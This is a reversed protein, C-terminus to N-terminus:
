STSSASPSIAREANRRRWKMERRHRRQPTPTVQFVRESPQGLIIGAVEMLVAVEDLEAEHRESPEAAPPPSPPLCRVWRGPSPDVVYGGPIFFVLRKAADPGIFELQQVVWGRGEKHWWWGESDPLALEKAEGPERLHFLVERMQGVGVMFVYDDHHEGSLKKEIWAIIEERNM